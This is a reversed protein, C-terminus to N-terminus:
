LRGIKVLRVVCSEIFKQVEREYMAQSKEYCEMHKANNVIVMRKRSRLNDYLERSGSPPTIDDEGGQFILVPVKISSAHVACDCRNIDFGFKHQATRRIQGIVWDPNINTSQPLTARLFGSLSAMPSDAIIGCVCEDFGKQQAALLCATAGAGRGVLYIRCNNGLRRKTFTFWNDLDVSEMLGWTFTKGGSMGHARMHTIICHCQVKRMMLRAYAAMEAPSEDYGHVLIVMNRCTRDSSPRYYGSLRCGDFTTTRVGLWENHFTYFWNKGRGIITSRDIKKPSRDVQPLPKPRTFLKKFVKDTFSLFLVFLVGGVLILVLVILVAVLVATVGSGNDSM